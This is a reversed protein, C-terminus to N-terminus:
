SSAPRLIVLAFRDTMIALSGDEREVMDRARWGIRIPESLVVREDRIRVRYLSQSLSGVILDGHWLEFLGKSVRTLQSVAVSPVWAFTPRVYGDHSGDTEALPWSYADYDTGYTVTPWGYNVGEELLNLEDGGRPGHETSWIQGQADIHLGQQNRHGSSYITSENTELDISITKGHDYTMDQPLNDRGPRGDFGFDGVTVLLQTDSLKAMRGGSQFLKFSTDGQRLALCPSTKYVDEWEGQREVRNDTKAIEVRSITLTYCAGDPSWDNYSVFLDYTTPSKQTLLIDKVSFGSRDPRLAEPFDTIGADPQLNVAGTPPNERDYPIPVRMPLVTANFDADLHMLDGYRSAILLDTGFTGIAGYRSTTYHDWSPTAGSLSWTEATLQYLNTNLTDTKLLAVEKGFTAPPDDEILDKTSEMYGRCFPWACNKQAFSGALFALGLIFGFLTFLVLWKAWTPFSHM